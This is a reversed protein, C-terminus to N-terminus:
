NGNVWKMKRGNLHTEPKKRYTAIAGKRTSRKSNNRPNPPGRTQKRPQPKKMM